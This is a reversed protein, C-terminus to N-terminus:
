AVCTFRIFTNTHTQAYRCKYQSTATNKRIPTHQTQLHVYYKSCIYCHVHVKISYDVDNNICAHIDMCRKVHM